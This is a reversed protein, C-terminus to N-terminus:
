SEPTFVKAYTLGVPGPPDQTQSYPCPTCFLSDLQPQRQWGLCLSIVYGQQRYMDKCGQDRYHRSIFLTYNSMYVHCWFYPKPELKWLTKRTATTAGKPYSGVKCRKTLPFLPKKCVNGSSITISHVKKKM